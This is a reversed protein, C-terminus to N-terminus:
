PLFTLHTTLNLRPFFLLHLSFKEQEANVRVALFEAQLLPLSKTLIPLSFNQSSFEGSTVTFPRVRLTSNRDFLRLLPPTPASHMAVQMELSSAEVETGGVSGGVVVGGGAVVAAGVVPGQGSNQM